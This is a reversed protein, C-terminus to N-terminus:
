AEFHPGKLCAETIVGSGQLGCLSVGLTDRFGRLAQGKQTHRTNQKPIM